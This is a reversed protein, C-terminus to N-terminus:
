VANTEFNFIDKIIKESIEIASENMLVHHREILPDPDIDTHEAWLRLKRELSLERNIGEARTRQIKLIEIQVECGAADAFIELVQDRHVVQRHEQDIQWSVRVYFGKCQEAEQKLFALDPVGNFDYYKMCRASTKHFEPIASTPSIKWRLFGKDGIEGYHYRGISGAYGIYRNHREWLQHLHIHGIMFASCNADFLDDVTYEHDYGSMPVGHETKSGYVTGHSIGITSVGQDCFQSNRVGVGILYKKIEAGMEVAVNDTSGLAAALSAKSTTPVCTAVFSTLEVDVENEAFISNVSQVWENTKTLAIQCVRNAVAIPFTGGVLGLLEITGVPEHSHTGQLLIVPAINSLEKVRNALARFPVSHAELRHETLDGALVIATPKSARCNAVFEGMCRDAEVLNKPCYHIDSTHAIEIEKM